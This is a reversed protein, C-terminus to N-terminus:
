RKTLEAPTDPLAAPLASSETAPFSLRYKMIDSAGGVAQASMQALGKKQALLRAIEGYTTTKGYPITYLIEWVENQFSTGTFHLPLKFDPEKGTFYIDLWRKTERFVPLEKEEHEKDLYLAFYKQGEFWLGTLGKEDAALLINGLPSKYKSTYQM